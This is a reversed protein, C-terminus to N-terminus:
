TRQAARIEGSLSRIEDAIEDPLEFDFTLRDLVQDLRLLLEEGTVDKILAFRVKESTKKFGGEVLIKVARDAHECIALVAPSYYESPNAILKRQPITAWWLALNWSFPVVLLLNLAVIAKLHAHNRIKAIKMPLFFCWVLGGMLLLSAVLGIVAAIIENTKACQQILPPLAAGAALSAVGLFLLKKTYLHYRNIAVVAAGLLANSGVTSCIEVCNSAINALIQIDENNM